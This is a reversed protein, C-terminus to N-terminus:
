RAWRWWHGQSTGAGGARHDGRGGVGRNGTRHDGVERRGVRCHRGRHEGVVPRPSRLECVVPSRSRDRHGRSCHRSCCHRTGWRGSRYHGSCYQGSCCQGSCWHALSCHRRSCRGPSCRRAAHCGARHHEHQRRLHDDPGYAMRGAHRATAGISFSGPRGSPASAHRQPGGPPAHRRVHAIAARARGTGRGARRCGAQRHRHRPGRVPGGRRAQRRPEQRHRARGCPELSRHGERCWGAPLGHGGFGAGRGRIWCHRRFCCRRFCRRRCSSSSRLGRRQGRASSGAAAPTARRAQPAGTFWARALRGHERGAGPAAPQQAVGTRDPHDPGEGRTAGDPVV